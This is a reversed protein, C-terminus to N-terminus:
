TSSTTSSTSTSSSSTSSSTSTSSTTTINTEENKLVKVKAIWAIAQSAAGAATIRLNTGSTTVALGTATLAGSATQCILTGATLTGSINQAGVYCKQTKAKGGDSGAIGRANYDIDVFYTANTETGVDFFTTASSGNTTLTATFDPSKKSGYVGQAQAVGAAGIMLFALAAALFRKM